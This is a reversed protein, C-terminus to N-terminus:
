TLGDVKLSTSSGADLVRSYDGPATGVCLRYGTAAPVADWELTVEAACAASCLAAACFGAPLATRLPRGAACHVLAALFRAASKVPELSKFIMGEGSWVPGGAVIM